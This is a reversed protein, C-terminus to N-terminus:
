ASGDEVGNVTSAFRVAYRERCIGRADCKECVNKQREKDAVPYSGGRIGEATYRLAADFAKLFTDLNEVPVYAKRRGEDQSGFACVFHAPESKDDGEISCYWASDVKEGASILLRLYCPIQAEAISGNEDPAVSSAKPITRKKYDIIVAGDKSRSMRDIRGGLVFGGALDPLTLELEFETPGIELDPFLRAEAEIVLEIYGELRSRYTELVVAAFPGCSLALREFARGLCEGIFGRYVDLREPKFRGDTERIRNYLRCLSEHYVVGLFKNDIFEIGSSESGAELLYTYLFKYPCSRYLDIATANISRLSGRTGDHHLPKLRDAAKSATQADLVLTDASLPRGAEAAAKLGEVQIRHLHRPAGGRGSLWAAELKYSDDRVSKPQTQSENQALSLLYGHVAKDGDWGSRPCSFVVSSGSLAYAKIFDPGSDSGAELPKRALCSAVKAGLSEGLFDFGRKPVSLADQSAGLIYHYRPYVGASVRWQSVGVGPERGARVYITDELERMFLAFSAKGVGVGISTEARELKGLEEICRALSLDVDEDWASRDEVFFETRLAYYYKRLESFSEADAIDKLRRRLKQYWTKLEGSLSREWADIGRGGEKWPALIHLRRGEALFERATKPERLPWTPSALLDRMSDYSFGSSATSMLAAFLRGGGTSALSLGSRVLIPVSLLSAERELYPLYRELGAITIAIDCTEIGKDLLSGIESLTDRLEGLATEPRRLDTRPKGEPLRVVHVSSSSIVAEEYEGFDEILEPFFIFTRGPLSCLRQPEFSPEFRNISALFDVYRSRLALWDAARPDHEGGVARILEPLRALSPLQSAIYSTFPTWEAAYEPPIIATFFPDNANEQLVRAAFIRRIASDVPVRTDKYAAIEKFRDWGMFRGTEVAAVGGECLSREIWSEACMESPFVFRSKRDGLLPFVVAEIGLDM